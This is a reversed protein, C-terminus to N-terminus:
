AAKRWARLRASRARPNRQLEEDTPRIVKRTLLRGLAEGRCACVPLDPPCVCDQSWERLTHKVIRDELSHYAIVVLVGDPLLAKRLRPLATELAALEDNVQIRLAQFVRAKEKASLPRQHVVSMADLLDQAKELRQSARRKVVEAALRRARPEEGYERFIRALEEEDWENLIDAATPGGETEDGMRMDLPAEGSRFAFGRRDEDIQRSSVGLDLLAGRLSPGFIGAGRAAEDFRAQLFRVRGSWPELAKGARALAEPDRDVALIRSGAIRQLIARAHGGGGVTADMIEGQGPSDALFEVVEDVLVPVHFDDDQAM